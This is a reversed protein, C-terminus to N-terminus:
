LGLRRRGRTGGPRLAAHLLRQAAAARQCENGAAKPDAQRLGALEAVGQACADLRNPSKGGDPEWTTMELELLDFVGVHHARGQQYLAAPGEARTGKGQKSTIGRVYITGPRRAPFPEKDDHLEEVRMGRAAAQVKILDRPMDGAHNREYLVGAADLACRDVSKRCWDEPAQRGSLDAVVHIHKSTDRALICVGAEDAEPGGSLSPDLSVLVIEPKEPAAASRNEDLWVQRWLAGASEDFALGEIEEDYARSGKVYQAITAKLYAKSLLPNDFTTGHRIINAIPDRRNESRLHQLVENKGKSTSDWFIQAKGVRTATALNRFAELRGTAEWDVIECMWSLDFNGSRPRGPAEPTFALAEVGNPWRVGDRYPEARFWPPSTAVLFDVQVEKVRDETPAMLAISRAEGIQVRRNIETSVCYSKGFGRGGDLGFSRWAYRPIRQDPRLWMDFDFALVIRELDSLSDFFAPDTHALAYAPSIEFSM